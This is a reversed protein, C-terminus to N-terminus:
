AVWCWCGRRLVYGFCAIAGVNRTSPHFYRSRSWALKLSSVTWTEHLGLRASLALTMSQLLLSPTPPNSRYNDPRASIQTKIINSYAEFYLMSKQVVPGSSRRRERYAAGADRPTDDYQDLYRINEPPESAHLELCLGLRPGPLTRRTNNQNTEVRGNQKYREIILQKHHYPTPYMRSIRHGTFMDSQVSTM